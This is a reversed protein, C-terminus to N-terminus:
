WSAKKVLASREVLSSGKVANVHLKVSEEPEHMNPRPLPLTNTDKNHNGTLCSRLAVERLQICRSDEKDTCTCDALAGGFNTALTANLQKSCKDPCRGENTEAECESIFVEWKANCQLDTECILKAFSCHKPTKNPLFGCKELEYRGPCLLCRDEAITQWRQEPVPEFCSRQVPTPMHQDCLCIAKLCEDTHQPPFSRSAANNGSGASAAAAICSVSVLTLIALSNLASIFARRLQM